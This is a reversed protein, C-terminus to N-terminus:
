SKQSRRLKDIIKHCLDLKKAAHQAVYRAQAETHYPELGIERVLKSWSENDYMTKQQETLKRQFNMINHRKLQIKPNGATGTFHIAFTM